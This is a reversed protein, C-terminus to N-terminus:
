LRSEDTSPCSCGDESRQHPQIEIYRGLNHLIYLESCSAQAEQVTKSDWQWMTLTVGSCTQVLEVKHCKKCGRCPELTMLLRSRHHCAEMFVFSKMKLLLRSLYITSSLPLCKGSMKVASSRIANRTSAMFRPSGGQSM